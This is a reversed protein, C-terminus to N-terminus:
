KQAESRRKLLRYIPPTVTSAIGVLESQQSQAIKKAEALTMIGLQKGTGDILRVRKQPDSPDGSGALTLNDRIM